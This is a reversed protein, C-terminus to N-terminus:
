ARFDKSSPKIISLFTLVFLIALLIYCIIKLLFSILISIFDVFMYHGGNILECPKNIALSLLGVSILALIYQLLFFTKKNKAKLALVLQILAPGLFLIASNVILSQSSLNISDDHMYYAECDSTNLHYHIAFLLFTIVNIFIFHKARM